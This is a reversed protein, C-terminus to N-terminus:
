WMPDYPWASLDVEEQMAADQNMEAAQAQENTMQEELKLQEYHSYAVQNGVYLCNCNQPDAYIYRPKGQHVFYRLQYPPVSALVSQRKPTDAPLMKFGAASLLPEVKLARQQPTLACGAAAISTVALFAAAIVSKCM